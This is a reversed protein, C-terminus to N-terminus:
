FILQSPRELLLFKFQNGDIIQGIAYKLKTFLEDESKYWLVARQRIDFPLQEIKNVKTNLLLIIRDWDLKAPQL